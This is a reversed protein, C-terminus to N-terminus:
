AYVALSGLKKLGHTVEPTSIHAFDLISMGPIIESCHSGGCSGSLM